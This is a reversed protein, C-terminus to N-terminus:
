NVVIQENIKNKLKLNEELARKFYVTLGYITGVEGGLAGFLYQGPRFVFSFNLRM